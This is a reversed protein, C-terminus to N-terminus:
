DRHWCVSSGTLRGPIEVDYFIIAAIMFSVKAEVSFLKGQGQCKM